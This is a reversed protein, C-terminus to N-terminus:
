KKKLKKSKQNEAEEKLAETKLFLSDDSIYKVEEYNPSDLFIDQWKKLRDRTNWNFEKFFRKEKSVKSMPYIDTNAGINCSVVQVKREEFLAEIVGCTSFSIGVRDNKETKKNYSDVYTIAQANGIVKALKINGQELFVTMFNGKVQNFEDKMNLSDAKSIAFANGQVKISDLRNTEVNSYLDIKDGSVQKEGTWFMPKGNLHMIGDTENFRISDSRGQMDQKFIRVKQYAKLFSKKVKMSDEKRYAMIKEASIYLSDKKLIKVAYPKETIMASDKKEYIEAYGGKIFRNEKPDDLMVNGKASGFERVQNYYMHDGTLDKGNYRIKSNKELFVEKSNMDYRGKETFVYNMPKEKNIVKTPGNFEAVNTKQNQVIKTGEVRYKDNDINVNGSVDVINTNIDYSANQTWITNKRNFITGGTNFYAKNLMKDYYLVDTKITQKPDTLVVNKRAIGRQTVGDYEMEDSTIQNGDATKLVVHGIAKIFNDKQYFVVRDATLVSGRHEFKVEGIFVPNGDYLDAHSVLSDSHIHKLMNEKSKLVQGKGSKPSFYSDKVLEQNKSQSFFCIGIFLFALFLFKVRLLM